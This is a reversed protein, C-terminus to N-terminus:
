AFYLTRGARAAIRAFAVILKAIDLIGELRAILRELMRLPDFRHDALYEGRLVIVESRLFM